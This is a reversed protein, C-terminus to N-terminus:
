ATCPRRSAASAPTQPPLAGPITGQLAEPPRTPPAAAGPAQSIRATTILSMKSSKENEAREPLEQHGCFKPVFSCGRAPFATKVV